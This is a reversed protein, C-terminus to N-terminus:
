CTEVKKAANRRLRKFARSGFRDSLRGVGHRRLDLTKHTGDVQQVLVFPICVEVVKLPTGSDAPMWTLRILEPKKWSEELIAWFPMYEQLVKMVCIYDGARVDEPALPRAIGSEQNKESKTSM